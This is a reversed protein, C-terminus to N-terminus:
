RSTPAGNSWCTPLTRCGFLSNQNRAGGNGTLHDDNIIVDDAQSSSLRHDVPTTTLCQATMSASTPAGYPFCYSVSLSELTDSCRLVRRTKRRSIRGPGTHFCVISTCYFPVGHVFDFVEFSTSAPCPSRVTASFGHSLIVSVRRPSPPFVLFPSVARTLDSFTRGGGSPVNDFTSSSTLSSSNGRGRFGRGPSSAVHM